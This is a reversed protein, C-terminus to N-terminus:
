RVIREDNAMVNSRSRVGSDKACITTGHIIIVPDQSVSRPSRPCLPKNARPGHTLTFTVGM